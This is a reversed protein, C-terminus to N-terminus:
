SVAEQHLRDDRSWRMVIEDPGESEATFGAATFTALSRANDPRIRAVLDRAALQKAEALARRAVGRGRLSPAIALSVVDHDDAGDLRIQGSRGAATEIVLLRRDPDHLVTRYWDLHQQWDPADHFSWRRVDTDRRLDFVFEADDLTAPRLRVPESIRAILAEAVRRAGDGPVRPQSPPRASGLVQLGCALGADLQEDAVLVQCALGQDLAATALQRQNHAIVIALAPTGVCAAELLSSGAALVAGGATALEAAYDAPAIVTIGPQDALAAMVQTRQPHAPGIAVRVDFGESAVRTAVSRTLRRPDSGGLAVFITEPRRSAALQGAEVIARRLLAFHVGLLLLPAGDLREYMTAVAHPNQNVIAIPRRAPTEGNDDVVAYRVDGDDLAAFFDGTIHYGDVVVLDPRLGIVTAADDRHSPAVVHRSSTLEPPIGTGCITTSLGAAALEDALALSRMVHGLGIDPSADARVVVHLSEPM